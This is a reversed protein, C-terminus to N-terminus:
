NKNYNILLLLSLLYMISPLISNYLIIIRLKSTPMLFRAYQKIDMFKSFCCSFCSSFCDSSTSKKCINFHSTISKDVVLESITVVDTVVDKFCHQLHLFIALKHVCEFTINGSSTFFYQLFCASSVCSGICVRSRLDFEFFPCFGYKTGSETIFLFIKHLLISM